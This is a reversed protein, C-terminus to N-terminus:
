VHFVIDCRAPKPPPRGELAARRLSEIYVHLADAETNHFARGYRALSGAQNALIEQDQRIVQRTYPPLVLRALPNALGLRFTIATYVLTEAPRVPTCQSTIIFSRDAGFHYDVRTVNPMFFHDTHRVPERRPNVLLHTFGIVDNSHDYTVLVERERREVTAPVRKQSQSRFWGAHTYVTHPVDMFNEACDTVDASFPTVMYYSRWGDHHWFPMSFPEVPINAPDGMWVWVLGGAERTPFSPVRQSPCRERGEPGRSPVRVCAGGAEYHWGHYPCVLVDGDVTGESLRANRHLCRDLLCRPAGSADRWLVLDEELITRALPRRGLEAATTAVYWAERLLGCTDRMSPTHTM